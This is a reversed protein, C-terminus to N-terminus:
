IFPIVSEEVMPGPTFISEDTAFPIEYRVHCFLPSGSIVDWGYLLVDHDLAFYRV